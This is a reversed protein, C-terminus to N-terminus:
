FAIVAVTWPPIVPLRYRVYRQRAREGAIVTHKLCDMHFLDALYPGNKVMIVADEAPDMSANVLCICHGPRVWVAIHHYSEVFASLTNGSLWQFTRKLFTLRSLFLSNEVPFYGSVAVRGGLSNEYIGFSCDTETAGAYNKLFARNGNHTSLTKVNM